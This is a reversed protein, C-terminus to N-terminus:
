KAYSAKVDEIDNQDKLLAGLYPLRALNDSLFEPSTDAAAAMVQLWVFLEATSPLKRLPKSRLALFRRIALEVFDASLRGYDSVRSKVAKRLLQEDFQIHHYACRRLFPEPLRRESNSTIFVIPRMKPEARVVTQTEAIKFEMKDLEHLLDNPFDRPAKDIEDILLVRPMDSELAEWLLRKEVYNTKSFSGNSEEGRNLNADHFYRVADFYYLLDAASSDSKVQFHLVPEVGLKYATYYAAQTKGTGPEGTILLPAGVALAANIAAELEDGPVFRQADKEFSNHIAAFPRKFLVAADDLPGEDSYSVLKFRYDM